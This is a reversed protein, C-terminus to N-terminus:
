AEISFSFSAHEEVSGIRIGIDLSWDGARDLMVNELRYVGDGEYSVVPEVSMRYDTDLMEAQLDLMARPVGRGESADDGPVPVAVRLFFTNDGVQAVGDQHYLTVKFAGDDTMQEQGDVYADVPASEDACAQAFILTALAFATAVRRM